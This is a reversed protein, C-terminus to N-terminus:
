FRMLVKIVGGTKKDALEMAKAADEISFVKSIFPAVDIKGGSIMDRVIEFEECVYMYSGVIHLEKNTIEITDCGQANRPTIVAAITGHPAVIDLAAQFAVNADVALFVVDIGTGASYERYKAVADETASNICHDAGLDRAKELNFKVMDSVIINRAGALRACELIGLGITGVGIIAATQGVKLQSLRVLHMGVALPEILAAQEYTMNDPISIVTEEPAVIYEGFSGSWKNSGLVIKNKCVNYQGNKCYYCNGCGYQPAVTVRDGIKYKTIKAGVEVVEGACEHGSVIPPIRYAHTGHYAHVESGCIGTVKVQIKVEDKKKIQPEEVDTYLISMPKDIFAARM